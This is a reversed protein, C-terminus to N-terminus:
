FPVKLTFCSCSSWNSWESWQPLKSVSELENLGENCNKEEKSYGDCLFVLPSNCSRTRHMKGSECISWSTWSSWQRKRRDLQIEDPCPTNTCPQIEFSPGKTSCDFGERCM